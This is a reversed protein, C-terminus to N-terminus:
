NNRQATKIIGMLARYMEPWTKKLGVLLAALDMLESKQNQQQSLPKEM